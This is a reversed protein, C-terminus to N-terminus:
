WEGWPLEAQATETVVLQATVRADIVFDRGYDVWSVTPQVCLGRRFVIVASPFPASGADNFRLRGQLFRIEHAHRVVHDHFWRTDTRAPVLAVVLPTGVTCTWCAKAMFATVDDYPPNVFCRGEWPSAHFIADPRTPSGPGYFRACLANEAHAAADTEFQFEADLAAFLGRPTRWDQRLQSFLGANIKLM